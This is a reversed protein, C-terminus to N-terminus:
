PKMAEILLFVHHFTWLPAFFTTHLRKKHTVLKEETTKSWSVNAAHPFQFLSPLFFIRPPGDAWKEKLFIVMEGDFIHAQPRFFNGHLTKPEKLALIFSAKNAKFKLMEAM